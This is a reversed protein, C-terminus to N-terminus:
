VTHFQQYVRHLDENVVHTYMETTALSSHGLLTQVYRMNANNRLLNTAFSHRLTHPHIPATFGAKERALRFISQVMKTTLRQSGANSIFLAACSDSRLALYEGILERTRPDTFCLRAKKGKGVVTFTGDDRIDACNLSVCETVRIGSAYLLSIIAANRYRNIAPYGRRPKLVTNILTSVDDKTIFDPVRDPRKPVPILAVDLVPVGQLKLYELVVRLRIIYERCTSASVRKDMDLKWDRVMPFTLDSMNIDGFYRLLGKRCVNHTEETKSSQGRFAIVDTAYAAFAQSITMQLREAPAWYCSDLMVDYVRM